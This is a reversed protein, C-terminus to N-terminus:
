SPQPSLRKYLAYLEDVMTQIGFRSQVFERGAMGLRARLGEDKALQLLRQSL